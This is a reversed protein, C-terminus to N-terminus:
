WWSANNTSTRMMYVVSISNVQHKDDSASISNVQHKDDSASISNVQHKDDSASIRNVQINIMVLQFVTWKIHIMV